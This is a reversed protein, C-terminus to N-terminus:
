SCCKYFIFIILLYVSSMEVDNNKFQRLHKFFLLMKHVAM